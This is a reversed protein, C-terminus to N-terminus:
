STDIQLNNLSTIGPQNKNSKKSASEEKSEEIRQISGEMLKGDRENIDGSATIDM